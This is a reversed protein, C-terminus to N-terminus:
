SEAVGHSHSWCSASHTFMLKSLPSRFEECFCGGGGLSKPSNAKEKTKLKLLCFLVSKEKM